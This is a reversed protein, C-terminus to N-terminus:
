CCLLPRRNAGAETGCLQRGRVCGSMHRHVRAKAACMCVCVHPGTNRCTTDKAGPHCCHHAAPRGRSHRSPWRGEWPYVRGEM